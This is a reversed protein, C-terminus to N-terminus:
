GSRASGARVGEGHGGADVVVVSGSVGDHDDNVALGRAAKSLKCGLHVAM